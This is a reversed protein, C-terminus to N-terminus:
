SGEDGLVELAVRYLIEAKLRDFDHKDRATIIDPEGYHLIEMFEKYYDLIEEDDWEHIKRGPNDRRM